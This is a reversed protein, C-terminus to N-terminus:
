NLQALCYVYSDFQNSKFHVLGAATDIRTIPLEEWKSRNQLDQLMYGNNTIKIRYPKYRQVANFIISNTFPFKVLGDKALSDASTSFFVIGNKYVNTNPVDGTNLMYKRWFFSQNNPVAGAETTLYGYAVYVTNTSSNYSTPVFFSIESGGAEIQLKQDDPVAYDVNDKNCSTILFAFLAIISIKKIIQGM